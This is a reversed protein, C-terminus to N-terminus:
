ELKKPWPQALENITMSGIKYHLRTWTFRFDVCFSEYLILYALVLSLPNIQIAAITNRIVTIAQVNYVLSVNTSRQM